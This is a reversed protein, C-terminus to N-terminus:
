IQGPSMTFQSLFHSTPNLAPFFSLDNWKVPRTSSINFHIPRNNFFFRIKLHQFPRERRFQIPARIKDRFRSFKGGLFNSGQNKRQLKTITSNINIEIFRGDPRAYFVATMSPSTTSTPCSPHAVYIPIYPKRNKVLHREEVSSEDHFHSWSFDKRSTNNQCINM